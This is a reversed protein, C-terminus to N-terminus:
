LTDHLVCIVWVHRVWPMGHERRRDVKERIVVVEVLRQDRMQRRTEMREGQEEVLKRAADGAVERIPRMVHDAFWGHGKPKPQDSTAQPM